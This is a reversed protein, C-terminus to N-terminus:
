EFDIIKQQPGNFFCSAATSSFRIPFFIRPFQWWMHGVFLVFALLVSPGRDAPLYVLALSAYITMGNVENMIFDSIQVCRVGISRDM